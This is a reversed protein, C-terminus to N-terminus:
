SAIVTHKGVGLMRKATSLVVSTPYPYVEFDILGLGHYGCWLGVAVVILGLAMQLLDPGGWLCGIGGVGVFFLTLGCLAGIIGLVYHARQFCHSFNGDRDNVPQIFLRAEDGSDRGDENGDKSAKIDM